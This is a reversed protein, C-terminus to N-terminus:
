QVEAKQKKKFQTTSETYKRIQEDADTTQAKFIRSSAEKQRRDEAKTITSSCGTASVILITLMMGVFVWGIGRFIYKYLWQEQKM